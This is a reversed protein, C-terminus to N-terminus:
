VIKKSVADHDMHLQLRQEFADIVGLAVKSFQSDTTKVMGHHNELVTPGQAWATCLTLVWLLLGIKMKLQKTIM